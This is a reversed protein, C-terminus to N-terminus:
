GEDGAREFLTRLVLAPLHGVEMARITMNDFLVGQLRFAQSPTRLKWGDLSVGIESTAEDLEYLALLIKEYCRQCSGKITYHIGAEDAARKIEARDDISWSKKSM